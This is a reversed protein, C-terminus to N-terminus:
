LGFAKKWKLIPEIWSKSFNTASQLLTRKIIADEKGFNVAFFTRTSTIGSYQQLKRMILDRPDDLTEIKFELIAYSQKSNSAVSEQFGLPVPLGVIASYSTVVGAYRLKAIM